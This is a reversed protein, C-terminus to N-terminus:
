YKNFSLKFHKFTIQKERFAQVCAIGESTGWKSWSVDQFGYSIEGAWM